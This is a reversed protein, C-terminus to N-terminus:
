SLRRLEDSVLRVVLDDLALVAYESVHYQNGGGPSAGGAGGAGYTLFTFRGMTLQALQRFVYEGQEDLGSSAIPEVKIGRQAAQLADAAYDPADQYDLHPPADAILFVLKVAGNDWSPKNLAEHLATSLDEPGDGGGDAGVEVLARRFAGVDSTFDTTRTLYADGRDRYLTMGVQLEPNSELKGIREAVSDVSSKLRDIEDSMSSTTDILFLVQLKARGEPRVIPLVAQPPDGKAVATTGGYTVTIEGSPRTLLMARGDAHTRMEQDGARVVAGFVPRTNRDVVTVIRRGSVDVDHVPLGRGAFEKRYRLYDSFVANDDVSGAQLGSQRPEGAAGAPGPGGSAASVAADEPPSTAGCGAALMVTPLVLAALVRVRHRTM